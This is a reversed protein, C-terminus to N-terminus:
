SIKENNLSMNILKVLIEISIFRVDMEWEIALNLNLLKILGKFKELILKKNKYLGYSKTEILDDGENSVPEFMVDYLKVIYIVLGICLSDFKNKYQLDKYGLDLSEKIEKVDQVLRAAKLNLFLLPIQHDEIFKELLIM